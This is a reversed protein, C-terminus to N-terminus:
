GVKMSGPLSPPPTGTCLTWAAKAGWLAAVTGAALFTSAVVGLAYGAVKEYDIGQEDTVYTIPQETDKNM